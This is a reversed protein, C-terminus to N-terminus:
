CDCDCGCHPCPERPPEPPPNRIIEPTASYCDAPIGIHLYVEKGDREWRPSYPWRTKDRVLSLGAYSAALLAAENVDKAYLMGMSLVTTPSGNASTVRYTFSPTDQGVPGPLKPDFKFQQRPPAPNTM